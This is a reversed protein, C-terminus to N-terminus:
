VVAPCSSLCQWLTAIVYVLMGIGVAMMLIFMVTGLSFRLFWNERPHFRKFGMEKDYYGLRDARKKNRITWKLNSLGMLITLIGAISYLVFFVPPSKLTMTSGIIVGDIALVAVPAQWGMSVLHRFDESLQEYEVKWEQPLTPCETKKEETLDQVGTLM